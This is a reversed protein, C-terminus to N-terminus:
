VKGWVDSKLWDQSESVLSSQSVGQRCTLFVQADIRIKRKVKRMALGKVTAMSSNVTPSFMPIEIAKKIWNEATM